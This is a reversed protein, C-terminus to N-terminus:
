LVKLGTSFEVMEEAQVNTLGHIRAIGDGISIVRGTEEVNFSPTKDLLREELISTIESTSPAAIFIIINHM